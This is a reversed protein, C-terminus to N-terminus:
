ELLEKGARNKIIEKINGEFWIRDDMNWEEEKEFLNHIDELIQSIFQKVDSEWYAYYWEECGEIIDSTYSEFKKKSLDLNSNFVEKESLTQEETM